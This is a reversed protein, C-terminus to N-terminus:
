LCHQDVGGLTVQHQTQEVLDSRSDDGRGGRLGDLDSRQRKNSDPGLDDRGPRPLRDRATNLLPPPEITSPDFAWVPEGEDGEDEEDDDLGYDSLDIQLDLDHDRDLWTKSSNTPTSEPCTAVFGPRAAAPSKAYGTTTIPRNSRVTYDDMAGRSYTLATMVKLAGAIMAVTAQDTNGAYYAAVLSTLGTRAEDRGRQFGEWEGNRMTAM